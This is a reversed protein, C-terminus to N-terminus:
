AAIPKKLELQKNHDDDQAEKVKAAKEAAYTALQEKLLEVSMSLVMAANLTKSWEGYYRKASKDEATVSTSADIQDPTYHLFPEVLMLKQHKELELADGSFEAEYYQKLMSDLVTVSAGDKVARIYKDWLADPKDIMYRRGYNVTSGIYSPSLNLRVVADLIFKHRKEAMESIVKLRDEEPKVEDMVETATRQTDKNNEMGQTKVKSQSGWLTVNMLEELLRLDATSIEYYIKDPSVYGAVNPAPSPNEKDPYPLLKADSVKLMIKKGSGKCDVCEKGDLYRTGACTPCDDAIEWYKPFGHMFEHTLKISGKLLFHRALEIVDDYLSLFHNENEASVLDSNILAPVEGFFNELTYSPLVRVEEGERMVYYDFADDIVRFAEADEKLGAAKKEQPTLRFVVYDLACGNPSYDYIASIGKYTPYVFSKGVKQAARAEKEPMIELLVIGFPDDLMHPKWFKEIWEKISIRKTVSQAMASARTEQEKPLNYHVKGGKASFVKDIPRGLRSFLDKNSKSYKTRLDHLAKREFDEIKSLNDALGSGYLHLRLTKNYEVGALILRRNPNNLIIDKIQAETLIM